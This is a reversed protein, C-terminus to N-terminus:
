CAEFLKKEQRTEAIDTSFRQKQKVHKDPFNSIHSTTKKTVASSDVKNLRDAGDDVQEKAEPINLAADNQTVLAAQMQQTTTYKTVKKGAEALM